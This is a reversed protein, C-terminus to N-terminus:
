SVERIPPSLLLIHLLLYCSDIIASYVVSNYQVNPSIWNLNASHKNNNTTNHNEPKRTAKKGSHDIHRSGRSINWMLHGERFEFSDITKIPSFMPIPDNWQIVSFIWRLPAHHYYWSIVTSNEERLM